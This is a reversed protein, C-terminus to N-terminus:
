TDDCSYTVALFIHVNLPVGLLWMHQQFDAYQKLIGRQKFWINGASYSTSFLKLLKPIVHQLLSKYKREEIKWIRDVEKPGM